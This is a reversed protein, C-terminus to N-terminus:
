VIRGGPVTVQRVYFRCGVNAGLGVSPKSDLVSTSVIVLKVFAM